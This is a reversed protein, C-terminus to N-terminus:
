EHYDAINLRDDRYGGVFTDVGAHEKIYNLLQVKPKYSATGVVGAEGKYEYVVAGLLLDILQLLDVGSSRMRCVGAVAPRRLKKNVHDRVDEEFSENPPTSYESYRRQLDYPDSARMLGVAFFPDRLGGLTGTEDLFGFAYSPAKRRV